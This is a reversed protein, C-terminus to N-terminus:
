LLQELSLLAFLDVSFYIKCIIDQHIIKLLKYM